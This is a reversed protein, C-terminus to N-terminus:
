RHCWPEPSQPPSRTPSGRTLVCKPSRSASSASTFASRRDIGLDQVRQHSGRSTFAVFVAVVEVCKRELIRELDQVRTSSTEGGRRDIAGRPM